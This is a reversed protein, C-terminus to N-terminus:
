EFSLYAEKVTKVNLSNVIKYIRTLVSVIAIPGKPLSLLVTSIAEFLAACIVFAARLRLMLTNFKQLVRNVLEIPAEDSVFVKFDFDKDHHIAMNLTSGPFTSQSLVSIGDGIIQFTRRLFSASALSFKKVVSALFSLKDRLWSFAKTIKSYLWRLARKVGDFIRAGLGKNKKLQNTVKNKKSKYLTNLEDNVKDVRISLELDSNDDDQSLEAFKKLCLEVIQTESSRASVKMKSENCFESVVKSLNNVYTVRRSTKRPGKLIRKNQYVIQSVGGHRGPQINEYGYLWLEIKLLSKTFTEVFNLSTISADIERLRPFNQSILQSLKEIDFLWEILDIDSTAESVQEAQIYILFRRWDNLKSIVDRGIVKVPGDPFIGLVAMRLEVARMLFIQSKPGRWQNLNSEEEFSFLAQLADWTQLGLWGDIGLGAHGQMKKIARKLTKHLKDSTLQTSPSQTPLYGLRFLRDWIIPILESKQNIKDFREKNEPIGSILGAKESKDLEKEFFILQDFGTQEDKITTFDM